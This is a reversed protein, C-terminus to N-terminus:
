AFFTVVAVVTPGAVPVLVSKKAKSEPLSASGGRAVVFRVEFDCKAICLAFDTELRPQNPTRYRNDFLSPSPAASYTAPM